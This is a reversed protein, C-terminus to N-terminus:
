ASLDSIRFGFDSVCNTESKPNRIESKSLLSGAGAPARTGQRRLLGRAAPLAAENAAWQDPAATGAAQPRVQGASSRAAVSFTRRVPRDGGAPQRPTPLHPLAPHGPPWLHRLLAEGGERGIARRRRPDATGPLRPL